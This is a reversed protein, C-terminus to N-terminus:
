VKRSKADLTKESVSIFWKGITTNMYSEIEKISMKRKEKYLPDCVIFKENEYGTLLIAHYTAYIQGALIVINGCELERKLLNATIMKGNVINAGHIAARELYEKYENMSFEYERESLVNQSNNFLNKDEHYITTDVGNKALHFAIASFPTGLMYQSHYIRYLRKEDYWNAKEIIKYYELVMMLCAVACTDGRQKYPRVNKDM